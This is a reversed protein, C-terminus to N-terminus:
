GGPVLMLFVAVAAGAALGIWLPWGRGSGAIKVLWTWNLLLHAVCLALFAVGAVLHWDGWEHRTMGLVTSAAAHGEGPGHGSGHGSGPPLRLWMLSGTGIIFCLVLYLALNLVRNTTNRWAHPILQRQAM